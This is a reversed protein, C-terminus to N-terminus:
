HRRLPYDKVPSDDPSDLWIPIIVWEHISGDPFIFEWTPFKTNNPYMRQLDNYGSNPHERSYIGLEDMVFQRAKEKSSFFNVRVDADWCGCYRDSEAVKYIINEM